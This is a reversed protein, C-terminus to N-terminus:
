RVIKLMNASAAHASNEQTGIFVNVPEKPVDAINDAKKMSKTKKQEIFDMVGFCKVAMIDGKARKMVRLEVEFDCGFYSMYRFIKNPFLKFPHNNDQEHATTSYSDFVKAKTEDIVKTVQHNQINSMYMTIKDNAVSLGFSNSKGMLQIDTVIRKLDDVDLYFKGVLDMPDKDRSIPVKKDYDRRFAALQAVPMRYTAHEGEFKFSSIKERKTTLEEILSIKTEKEPYGIANSYNIFESLNTIGIEDPAFNINKETTITHVLTDLAMASHLYLGDKKFILAHRRNPLDAVIKLMNNLVEMYEPTFKIDANM